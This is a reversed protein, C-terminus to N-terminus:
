VQKGLMEGQITGKMNSVMTQLDVLTQTVMMKELEKDIIYIGTGDGVRKIKTIFDGIEKIINM